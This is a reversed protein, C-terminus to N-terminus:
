PLHEYDDLDKHRGSAKKNIKLKELSIIPVQIGDIEDVVKKQYCEDFKVGSISTLIEIRITKAVGSLMCCVVSM